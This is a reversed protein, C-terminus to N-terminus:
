APQIVLRPRALHHGATLVKHIPRAAEPQAPGDSDDVVAEGTAGVVWCVVAVEVGSGAEGEGEGEGELFTTGLGLVGVL